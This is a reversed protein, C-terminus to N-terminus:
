IKPLFDYKDEKRKVIDLLEGVKMIYKSCDNELIQLIKITYIEIVNDAVIGVVKAKCKNGWEQYLVNDGVKLYKEAM